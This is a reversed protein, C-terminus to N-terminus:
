NSLVLGAAVALPVFAPPLVLLMPVFVLQTPVAAGANVEFEVRAACAYALVFAVTALAPGGEAPGLLALGLAAALVLAGNVLNATRERGAPPRPARARTEAVRREDLSAVTAEM